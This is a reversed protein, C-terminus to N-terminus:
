QRSDGSERGVRQILWDAYENIVDLGEVHGFLTGPMQVDGPSSSDTIKEAGVLAGAIACAMCGITDTDWGIMTAYVSCRMFLSEFPIIPTPKLSQLFVHLATPIAEIAPEGNGLLNVVEEISPRTEQLAFRKVTALKERYQQLADKHFGRPRGFAFASLDAAELDSQLDDVLRGVDISQANGGAAAISLVRRIAHAQLLAGLLGLANTHTIATVQCVLTNFDAVSLRLGYLPVPTIRMGGGNGYSGSGSFQASSVKFPDLFGNAKMRAFLSGISNGYLRCYPAVDFADSFTKAMHRPDFGNMDRLSKCICLAMESDDTYRLMSREVGSIRKVFFELILDVPIDRKLEFPAGFADGFVSGYLCGRILKDM